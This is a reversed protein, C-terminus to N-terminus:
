ATKINLKFEKPMPLKKGAHAGEAFQISFTM